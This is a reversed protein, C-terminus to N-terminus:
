RPGNVLPLNDSLTKLIHRIDAVESLLVNIDRDNTDQLNVPSSEFWNISPSMGYFTVFGLSESM